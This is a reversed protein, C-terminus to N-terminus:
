LLVDQAKSSSKPCRAGGGSVLSFPGRFCISLSFLFSSVSLIDASLLFDEEGGRVEM